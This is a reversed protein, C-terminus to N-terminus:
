YLKNDIIIQIAMDVEKRTHPLFLTFKLNNDNIFKKFMKWKIKFEASAKGKTEIIFNKGVFDPLYTVKPDIRARLIFHNKGKKKAREYSESNFKVPPQLTYRIKEYKFSINKEKLKEYCYLELLSRFRIGHKEIITNNFKTAKKKIITAGKM